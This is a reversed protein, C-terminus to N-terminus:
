YRYRFEMINTLIYYSVRDCLETFNSDLVQGCTKKFTVNRGMFTLTRPRVIDNELSCLYKFVTNLQQDADCDTKSHFIFSM